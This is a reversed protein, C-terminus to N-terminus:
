HQLKDWKLQTVRYSVQNGEDVLDFCKQSSNFNPVHKSCKEPDTVYLYKHETANLECLKYINKGFYNNQRSEM